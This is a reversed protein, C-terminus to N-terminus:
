VHYNNYYIQPLNVSIHYLISVTFFVAFLGIFINECGSQIASIRATCHVIYRYKYLYYRTSALKYMM